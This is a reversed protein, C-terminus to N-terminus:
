AFLMDRYKVIVDMVEGPNELRVIRNRLDASDHMGRTYWGIHKRMRHVARREPLIELMLRYHGLLVDIRERPMLPVTLNFRSVFSGPASFIWPKGLAGRGIMVRDCGTQQQMRAADEWSMVDGNGVVPINSVAAKVRGIVDWDARTHAANRVYRAHIAVLAAGAAQAAQAAQPATEEPAQYGTRLKVSVPLGSGARAAEVICGILDPDQMLYGGACRTVMKKVPCGCNIDILDPKYREAIIAAAEHFPQPESGFLQVAIPREDPHFDALEFSKVGMRRVGEASICESYLLGSGFMRSLRRFASDTIGAMPALINGSPLEWNGILHRPPQQNQSLIHKDKFDTKSSLNM